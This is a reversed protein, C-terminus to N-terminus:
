EIRERGRERDDFLRLVGLFAFFLACGLLIGGIIDSFWHVGSLFRGVVTVLLLAFSAVVALIALGRNKLYHQALRAASGFLVISLMSHSSPFSAEPLSDGPLIVPRVNVAFIDFFLYLALAVVYLGALVFLERDVRALSKRKIWQFVGLGAFIAASLIGVYGTWKTLSFLSPKFDGIKDQLTQNLTSLGVKGELPAIRGVDLTFLLVILVLFLVAFVGSFFLYLNRKM